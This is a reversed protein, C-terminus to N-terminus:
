NYLKNLLLNKSRKELIIILILLILGMVSILIGNIFYQQLFHMSVKHTGEPVEIGILSDVVIVPKVKKVDVRISWGPEYPISTCMIQNPKATINGEICTDSYKTIDWQNEKLASIANQFNVEDIYYFCQDMMYLDDKTPTTIISIQEGINFKGIPMICYNETEYYVSIFQKNVWLNMTREYSSPFFVYILDDTPATMVFEIHANIGTVTPSYKIHGGANQVTINEYNIADPFIKNFVPQEYKGLMDNVMLNQNAFPNSDNLKTNLINNDVMFGVSLANPNQYVQIAKNTFKLDYDYISKKENLIYKIGFIADTVKTAGNYKTYHGRSTFGLKSLLDIAPTNMTSSSHSLGKLGFAM